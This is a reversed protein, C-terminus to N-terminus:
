ISINLVNKVIIKDVNPPLFFKLKDTTICAGAKTKIALSKYRINDFFTVDNNKAKDLSSIKEIIFNKKLSSDKYIKKIKIKNKKFFLNSNM